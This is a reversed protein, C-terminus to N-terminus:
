ELVVVQMEDPLSDKTIKIKPLATINEQGIEKLFEAVSSLGEMKYHMPIVIEPELQKIIDTAIKADITYKGGVPIFLVDVNELADVQADTLKEQGLDGLHVFNIGDMHVHFITNKGKESGNKNDHFSSIGFIEVGAVEYEGPATFVVIRKDEPVVQSSDNHDKHDHTVLVADATVNKPFKQGLFDSDFPDIVVSANKGKLKFSSHGLAIIDM